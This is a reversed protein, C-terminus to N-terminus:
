TRGGHLGPAPNGHLDGNAVCVGAVAPGTVMAVLALYLDVLAATVRAVITGSTHIVDVSERTHAQWTKCTFSKINNKFNEFLLL